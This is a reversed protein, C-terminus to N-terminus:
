HPIHHPLGGRACALSEALWEAQCGRAPPPNEALATLVGTVRNFVDAPLRRLQRQAAPALQVHWSM